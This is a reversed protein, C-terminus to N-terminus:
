GSHRLVCDIREVWSADTSSCDHVVVFERRTVRDDNCYTVDDLTDVLEEDDSYDDNSYSDDDFQCHFNFGKEETEQIYWAEDELLEGNSSTQEPTSPVEGGYLIRCARLHLESIFESAFSTYEQNTYNICEKHEIKIETQNEKENNM